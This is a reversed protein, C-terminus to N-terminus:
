IRGTKKLHLLYITNHKSFPSIINLIEFNIPNIMEKFTEKSCFRIDECVFIDCDQTTYNNLQSFFKKQIKWDNDVKKRLQHDRAVNDIISPVYNFLPPNAVILDYQHSLGELCDTKKAICNKLNNKLITQNCFDIAPQFCDSLTIKKCLQKEYLYFGIAGHGAFAELGHSYIGKTGYTRIIDLFNYRLHLGDIDVDRNYYIKIECDTNISTDTM